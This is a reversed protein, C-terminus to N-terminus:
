VADLKQLSIIQHACNDILLNFLKEYFSVQNALNLFLLVYLATIFISHISMGILLNFIIVV